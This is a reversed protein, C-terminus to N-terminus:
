TPLLWRLSIGGSEPLIYAQWHGVVGFLALFRDILFSRELHIDDDCVIGKDQISDYHSSSGDCPLSGGQPGHIFWIFPKGRLYPLSGLTPM